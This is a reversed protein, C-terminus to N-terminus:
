IPNNAFLLVCRSNRGPARRQRPIIKGNCYHPQSERDTNYGGGCLFAIKLRSGSHTCFLKLSDTAQAGDGRGSGGTHKNLSIVLLNFVSHMDLAAHSISAGSGTYCHKDAFQRLYREAPMSERRNSIPSEFSIRSDLFFSLSFVYLSAQETFSHFILM